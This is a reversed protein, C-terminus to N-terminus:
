QSVGTRGSSDGAGREGKKREDTIAVIGWLCGEGKVRGVTGLEGRVWNSTRSLKWLM